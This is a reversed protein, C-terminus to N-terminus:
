KYEWRVHWLVSSGQVDPKTLGVVEKFTNDTSEVSGLHLYTSEDLPIWGMSEAKIRALKAWFDAEIPHLTM